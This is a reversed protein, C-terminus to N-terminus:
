LERLFWFNSKMTQLCKSLLSSVRRGATESLDWAVEADRHWLSRGTLGKSPESGRKPHLGQKPAVSNSDQTLLPTHGTAWPSGHTVRRNAVSPRPWGSGPAEAAPGADPKEASRLPQRKARKRRAPSRTAQVIEAKRENEPRRQPNEARRRRKRRRRWTGPWTRALEIEQGDQMKRQWSTRLVMQSVSKKSRNKRVRGSRPKGTPVKPVDEEKPTKSAPAQASSGERKEPGLGDREPQEAPPPKRPERLDRPFGPAPTDARCRSLPSPVRTPSQRGPGPPLRHRPSGAPAEEKSKPLESDAEEQDQSFKPSEGSPKLQPRLSEASPEPQRQPSELGPDRQRQPSGPGPEPRQRPSGLGGGDQLSPSRPSTEPQHRPSGLSPPRVRRPSGPERKEEPNSELEVLARRARVVSTPNGPSEPKPGELRRSRRRPTDM